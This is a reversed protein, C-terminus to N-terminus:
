AWTEKGAKLWNKGGAGLFGWKLKQQVALSETVCVCPDVRKIAGMFTVASYQLPTGQAM